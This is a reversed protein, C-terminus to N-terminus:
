RPLHASKAYTRLLAIDSVLWSGGSRVLRLTFAQATTPTRSPARYSLLLMRVLATRGHPLVATIRPRVFGPGFVSLWSMLTADSVGRFAAATTLRRLSVVDQFQVAQFWELTVHSPSGPESAAIDANSILNPPLAEASTTSARTTPQATGAHSGCGSVLTVILALVIARLRTM